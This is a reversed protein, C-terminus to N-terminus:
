LPPARMILNIGEYCSSSIPIEREEERQRETERGGTGEGEGRIHPYRLFSAMQFDPLSSEGSV